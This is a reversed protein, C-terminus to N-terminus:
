ARIREAAKSPQSFKEGSEVQIEVEAEVEVRGERDGM